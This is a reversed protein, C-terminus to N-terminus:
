RQRLCIRQSYYQCCVTGVDTNTCVECSLRRLFLVEIARRVLGGHAGEVRVRLLLFVFCDCAEYYVSGIQFNTSLNPMTLGNKVSFAVVCSTQERIGKKSANSNNVQERTCDRARECARVCACVCVCVCVCM